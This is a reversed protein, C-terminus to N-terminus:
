VVSHYKAVASLFSLGTMVLFCHRWRYQTLALCFASDIATDGNREDYYRSSKGDVLSSVNGLTPDDLTGYFHFDVQSLLASIAFFFLNSSVFTM